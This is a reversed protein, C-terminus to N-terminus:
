PPEKSLLKKLEALQVHADDIEKYLKSREDTVPHDLIWQKNVEICTERWSIQSKIQDFDIADKRHRYTNESM